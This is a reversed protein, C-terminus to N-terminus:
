LKEEVTKTQYLINLADMLIQHTKRNVNLQAIANDLLEFARKRAENNEM